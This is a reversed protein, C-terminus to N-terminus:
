VKIEVKKNTKKLENKLRFYNKDDISTFTIKKLNRRMTFNMPVVTEIYGYIMDTISNIRAFRKMRKFFDDPTIQKLMKEYVNQYVFMAYKTGGGAIALFAVVKQKEQASKLSKDIYKQTLDFPLVGLPIWKTERQLEDSTEPDKLVEFNTPPFKRATKMLKHLNTKVRGYRIDGSFYKEIVKTIALSTAKLLDDGVIGDQTFRSAYSKVSGDFWKRFSKETMFVYGKRSGRTIEFVFMDEKKAKSFVKANEETVPIDIGTKRSLEKRMKNFKAGHGEKLDGNSIFYVHIMEHLIIARLSKDTHQISNSIDFSIIQGSSAKYKVKGSARKLPRFNFKFYDPLKNGFLKYNYEDYIAKIKNVTITENLFQRFSQM